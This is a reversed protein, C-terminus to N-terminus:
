WDTEIEAMRDAGVGIGDDNPRAAFGPGAFRVLGADHAAVLDRARRLPPGSGFSAAVALFRRYDAFSAPDLGGFEVLPILASRAAAYSHLAMKLPSAAGREAEAIDRRVARAVAEDIPAAPDEETLPRAAADLSLRDSGERLHADVLEDVPRRSERIGRLLGDLDRVSAPSVRGLTAYYDFAADREILPLIDLNFDLPRRGRLEDIAARLIRQEPFFPVAGFQPKARYPVGRSSGAILRPERGSAEYRHSGDATPVFRGGRQETLQSLTDFFGMGLGRIAVSDGAGIPGLDQDIPNGPSVVRPHGPTDDRPLWGLALVVAAVAVEGGDDLLVTFGSTTPSVEVARAAHVRVDINTPRDRVIRAFCWRLYYGYLLRSPSSWDRTGAAEALVDALEQAAVDTGITSPDRTVMACWEALSPGPRLPGDCAVTEDTFLTSQAAVTNMILRSSQGARWIRGSGPPHPDILHIILRTEGLLEPASAILREVVSTGRVSAGVVAIAASGADQVTM